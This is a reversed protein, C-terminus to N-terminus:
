CGSQPADVCSFIERQLDVLPHSGVQMGNALDHPSNPLASAQAANGSETDQLATNRGMIGFIQLLHKNSM